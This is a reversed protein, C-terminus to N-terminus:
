MFAAKLSGFSSKEDPVLGHCFNPEGPTPLCGTGGPELSGTYPDLADYIFWGPGDASRGYSRDDDAAHDPYTVDELTELPGETPGHLLYLTDGGNNLSFGATSVGAAAQWAVADSGYFVATELPDLVGSLNFRPEDASEDRVWYDRLDVPETGLNIVEIWEDLKYDVTGDHDWDTAPDALIENIQVVAGAPVAWAAALLLIAALSSMLLRRM